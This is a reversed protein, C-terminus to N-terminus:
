RRVGDSEDFGGNRRKAGRDVRVRGAEKGYNNAIETVEMAVM